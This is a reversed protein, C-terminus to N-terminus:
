TFKSLAQDWSPRTVSSVSFPDKEQIDEWTILWIVKHRLPKIADKLMANSLNRELIFESIPKWIEKKQLPRTVALFQVILHNKELILGFISKSDALGPIAKAVLIAYLHNTGQTFLNMPRWTGRQLLSNAVAKLVACLPDRVLIPEWTHRLIEQKQLISSVGLLHVSWYDKIEGLDSLRKIVTILILEKPKFNKWWKKEQPFGRARNEMRTKSAYVNKNRNKRKFRM